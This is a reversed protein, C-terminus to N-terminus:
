LNPTHQRPGGHGEGGGEGTESQLAMNWAEVPLNPGSTWSNMAWGTHPTYTQGFGWSAKTGFLTVVPRAQTTLPSTEGQVTGPVVADPNAPIRVLGGSTSLRTALVQGANGLSTTDPKDSVPGHEHSCGLAFGGLSLAAAVFLPHRFLRM